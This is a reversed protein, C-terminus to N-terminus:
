LPRVFGNEEVNSTFDATKSQLYAACGKLAAYDDQVVHIPFAEMFESFRGRDRFAQEFDFKEMFPLIASSLGGVLYIGGFPLHTLALNGAVLGLLRTFVEVTEVARADGGTRCSEIIETSSMQQSDGAECALWSFVRELGRGSLVDDVATFGHHEELFACLRQDAATRTPMSAHGCESKAVYWGSKTWFVPTANFGTGVNLVLKTAHSAAAHGERVLTLDYRALFELAYGQAELDNLLAVQQTGTAQAIAPISIDWALNTLRARGDNVPGAVDVCVAKPVVNGEASLYSELVAALGAHETNRYRRITGDILTTGACLGVRTNTGGIDVVLFCSNDAHQM